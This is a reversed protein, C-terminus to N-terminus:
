PAAVVVSRSLPGPLSGGFVVIQITQYDLTSGGTVVTQTRVVTTQRTFRDLVAVETGSYLSDLQEYRPDMTVATVRDSLAQTAMERTELDIASRIMSAGTAGLGLVGVMFIMLAIIVEVLTFGARAGTLM